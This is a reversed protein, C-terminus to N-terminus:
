ISDDEETALFNVSKKSKSLFFLSLCFSIEVLISLTSVAVELTIGSSFAGSSVVFLTTVSYSVLTGVATALAGLRFATLYEFEFLSGIFLMVSGASVFCSGVFVGVTFISPTNTVASFAPAFEFVCALGWVAFCIPAPWEKIGEKFGRSLFYILMAASVVSYNGGFFSLILAVAALVSVIINNRKSSFITDNM